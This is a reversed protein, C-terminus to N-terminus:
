FLCQKFKDYLKIFMITFAGNSMVNASTILPYFVAYLATIFSLIKQSSKLYKKLIPLMVMIREVQVAVIAFKFSLFYLLFTIYNMSACGSIIIMSLIIIFFCDSVLHFGVIIAVVSTALNTAKCKKKNWELILPMTANNSITSM